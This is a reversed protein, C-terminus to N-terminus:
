IQKNKPIATKIKNLEIISTNPRINNCLRFLLVIFEVAALTLSNDVVTSAIVLSWDLSATTTVVIVFSGVSTSDVVFVIAFAVTEVDAFVDDICFLLPKADISSFMSLVDSISKVVGIDIGLIDFRLLTLIWWEKRKWKWEIRNSHFISKHVFLIIIFIWKMKECEDVYQPRNLKVAVAYTYCMHVLYKHFSPDLCCIM